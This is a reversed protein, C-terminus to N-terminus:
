SYHALPLDGAAAPKSERRLRTSPAHRKRQYATRHRIFTDVEGAISVRHRVRVSAERRVVTEKEHLLYEDATAWHGFDSRLEADRTRHRM